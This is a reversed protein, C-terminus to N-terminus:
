TNATTVATTDDVGVLETPQIQIPPSPFSVVGGSASFIARRCLVAYANDGNEKLYKAPAFLDPTKVLAAGIRKSASLCKATFFDGRESVPTLRFANGFLVGKAHETIEDRAFDEQLNRELQSFKDINVPRSDKGEVEGLCRGEPSQFVGDFESEGDSFPAAEFGFLGMAELVAAELPKGQEYLLRRLTGEESLRGELESKETQLANIKAAAEVIRAELEAEAILRYEASNSWSPAPTIAADHKLRDSLAVLCGVLRKGFQLAEPTWYEIDDEEDDEADRLFAEDDYTIPPLFLLYGGRKSHSAAGVIRDGVRSRLLTQTFDGEIEVEYPSSASFADWYETLYAGDKELRIASGSKAAVRKINPLSDYSSIGSVMETAVRGRGTGSFQQSGTYRFYEIPKALYIVVLKGANVAAVIETHWHDVRAKKSFSDRHSLIPRGEWQQGYEFSCGGLSPQFLIIDADLLTQDSDFDIHDFEEGPLEFGVTFLRKKPM